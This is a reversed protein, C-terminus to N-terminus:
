GARATPVSRFRLSFSFAREALWCPTADGGIKPLLRQQMGFVIRVRARRNAAREPNEWHVTGLSEINMPSESTLATSAAPALRVGGATSWCSRMTSRHLYLRATPIM